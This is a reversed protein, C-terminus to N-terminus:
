KGLFLRFAELKSQISSSEKNDDLFQIKVFPEKSFKKWTGAIRNDSLLIPKFIGNGLFSMDIERPFAINRGESYGVMYEDYPFYRQYKRKQIFLIRLTCITCDM